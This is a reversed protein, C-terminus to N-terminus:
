TQRLPRLEWNSIQEFKCIKATDNGDGKVYLETLKKLNTVLNRCKTKTAKAVKPSSGPENQASIGQTAGNAKAKNINLQKKFAAPDQKFLALDQHLLGLDVYGNVYQAFMFSERGSTESDGAFNLIRSLDSRLNLGIKM